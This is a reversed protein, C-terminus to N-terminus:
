FSFSLSTNHVTSVSLTRYLATELGEPLLPEYENSEIIVAATDREEATHSSHHATMSQTFLRFWGAM